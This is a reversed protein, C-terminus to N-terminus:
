AGRALVDAIAFGDGGEAKRRYMARDALSLLADLSLGHGPYEAIGISCTLPISEGDVQIPPKLARYLREALQLSEGPESVFAGVVFEDGGFRALLDSDRAANRFRAGVQALYRDGTRHGLRDNIPKFMDLDIFLVAVARHEREAVSLMRAAQEIFSRRNFLGTLPDLSAAERALEEAERRQTIDIHSLLVAPNNEFAFRIGHMLFWRPGDPTECVYEYQLLARRGQLLERLMVAVYDLQPSQPTAKCSDLYNEGLWASEKGGNERAFAQWQRNVAMIRGEGDLLVSADPAHEFAARFFRPDLEDVSTQKSM